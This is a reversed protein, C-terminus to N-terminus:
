CKTLLMIPCEEMCIPCQSEYDIYIETKDDLDQQDIEYYEANESDLIRIVRFRNQNNKNVETKEEIQNLVKLIMGNELDKESSGMKATFNEIVRRSTGTFYNQQKSSTPKEESAFVSSFLMIYLLIMRLPMTM